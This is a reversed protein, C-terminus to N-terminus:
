SEDNINLVEDIKDFGKRIFDVIFKLQETEPFFSTQDIIFFGNQENQAQYFGCNMNDSLNVKVETYEITKNKLHDSIQLLENIADHAKMAEEVSMRGRVENDNSDKGDICFFYEEFDEGWFRLKRLFMDFKTIKYKDITVNSLHYDYFQFLPSKTLSKISNIININLWRSIDIDSIIENVKNIRPDTLYSLIEKYHGNSVIWDGYYELDSGDLLQIFDKLTNIDAESPTLNPRESMNVPHNHLLLVGSAKIKQALNIIDILNLEVWSSRGKNEIMGIPQGINNFYGAVVYETKRRRMDNALHAVFQELNQGPSAILKLSM